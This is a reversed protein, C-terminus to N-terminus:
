RPGGAGPFSERRTNQFATFRWGDATRVAVLSVRSDHGPDPEEGAAVAMGGAHVVHAVDPTIFRVTPEEAPTSGVGLRSGKLPGNFLWRHGETIEARGSQLMGNYVIYTADETFTAGYADADGANWADNFRDLLAAVAERGGDPSPDTNM